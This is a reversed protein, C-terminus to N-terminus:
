AAAAHYPRCLEIVKRCQEADFMGIHTQEPRLSMNQSLWAYAAGRARRKSCGDKAMKRRWLSDFLRHAQMRLDRVEANCPSGLPLVTGKHCGVRADCRDCHWQPGYDRGGYTSASSAQLRCLQGCHLCTVKPLPRKKKTSLPVRYM